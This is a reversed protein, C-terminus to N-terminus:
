RDAKREVIRQAEEFSHGDSLLDALRKGKETLTYVPEIDAESLFVSLQRAEEYTLSVRIENAGAVHAWPTTDLVESLSVKLADRIQEGEQRRTEEANTAAVTGVEDSM